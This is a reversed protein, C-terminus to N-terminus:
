VLRLLTSKGSGNLGVLGVRDREHLAFSVGGLVHRSGFSKEVNQVTVIATLAARRSRDFAAGVARAAVAGGVAGAAAGGPHLPPARRRRPLAGRAARASRRLRARRGRDAENGRAAPRAERVRPSLSRDRPRHDAAIGRRARAARRPLRAARRPLLREQPVAR